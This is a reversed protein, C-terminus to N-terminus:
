VMTANLSIAGAEQLYKWCGETRNTLKKSSEIEDESAKSPHEPRPATKRWGHRKLLRYITTDACPKATVEEYEKMITAITVIQGADALDLFGDLFAIEESISMNRHNGTRKDTLIADMGEKIYKSVLETIYQVSFGVIESIEKNQKGMARMYLALLRNYAKVDKIKRKSEKSMHRKIERMQPRTFRHKKM